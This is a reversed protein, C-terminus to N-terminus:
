VTRRHSASLPKSRPRISSSVCILARRKRRIAFVEVGAISVRTTVLEIHPQNRAFLAIRCLDCARERPRGKGRSPGSAVIVPNPWAAVDCYAWIETKGGTHDASTDM